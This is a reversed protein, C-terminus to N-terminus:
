RKKEQRKEVIRIYTKELSHEVKAWAASKFEMRRKKLQKRFRNKLFLHTHYQLPVDYGDVTNIIKMNNDELFLYYDSDASEIYCEEPETNYWIKSDPDSLLEIWIKVIWEEYATINKPRQLNEKTRFLRIVWIKWKLM